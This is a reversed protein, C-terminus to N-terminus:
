PNEVLRKVKEVELNTSAQLRAMDKMADGFKICTDYCTRDDMSPRKFDKLYNLTHQM